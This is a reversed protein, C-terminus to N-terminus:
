GSQVKPSGSSITGNMPNTITVATAGAVPVAANWESVSIQISDGVRGIAPGGGALKLTTPLFGAGEADEFGLVVPRSPDSDVFGVLVRSGLTYLAKCGPLGPRVYVRSLDPMGTSVRVPQLNLREGDQTVIRYEWVGRFKQNPDLQDFLARFASLRRSSANQKGWIKSRIGKTSAEHEVDVAVLGDVTIGPLITGISESALTLTGAAKDIQSVRAATAQLTTVARQGLRTKGDEGVYWNGPSLQELLRCAPGDPRVFAPGLRVTQDITTTDFTEGVSAAADLLVTSLKVGADNAYSKKPLLKAWGGFGAVLRYFSRGDATGGALVTCQLTLDAVILPVQGTLATEGDITVDHYAIGWAPISLRSDTVTNGALTVVIADAM